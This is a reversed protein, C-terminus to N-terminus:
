RFAPSKPSETIAVWDLEQARVFNTDALGEFTIAIDERHKKRYDQALDLWMAAAIRHEDAQLELIDQSM